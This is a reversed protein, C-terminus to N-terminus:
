DEDDWWTRTTTMEKEWDRIQLQIEPLLAARQAQQEALVTSRYTRYEQLWIQYLAEAKKKQEEPMNKASNSELAKACINHAYQFYEVQGAVHKGLMMSAHLMLFNKEQQDPTDSAALEKFYFVGLEACGMANGRMCSERVWRVYTEKDGTKALWHEGLQRIATSHGQRAAELTQGSMFLATPDGMIAGQRYLLMRDSNVHFGHGLIAGEMSGYLNRDGITAEVGYGWGPRTLTDAVRMWFDYTKRYFPDSTDNKPKGLTYALWAAALPNGQKAREIVQKYYYDKDEAPLYKEWGDEIIIAQAFTSPDIRIIEELEADQQTYFKASVGEPIDKSGYVYARPATREDGTASTPYLMLLILALTPFITRHLKM